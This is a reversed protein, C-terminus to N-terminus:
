VGGPSRGGDRRSRSHALSGAANWPRVVRPPFAFTFNGDDLSLNPSYFPDEEVLTAGWRRKMYAVENAFRRSNEPALDSGRSASELHYLEAYPTWIIGYGAERIRLCLDVDNFAVQLNKEDFGGVDEFVRRPMILCAATVCSVNQVLHLRGFYGAAPRPFRCHAHGAVGGMGIIVGAHQITDDGYYLKAGVAGIRPQVAQSVMETLWAPEIVEIDNNIFGIIEGEAIAVARNNLASFNFAGEIRLLRVRNDTGLSELYTLTAPERSDNDVILIELNPYDTKQLLGNICARLLELRDRTPVILSVRPPPDPLHRKVRWCGPITSPVIDVAEGLRVFHDTLARHAAQRTVDPNETSFTTVSPELRRHCLVHPIHRIGDATTRACIRLALDYDQRGEYECRFGGVARMLSTRFVGLHSVMNQSHFLEPNWDPKFYPDCRRDHDDIRDEDSYILDAGPHLNLEVAVMYLAHVPLLDDHDMLAVFDGTALELASNCAASMHRSQGCFVLKVRSDRRAYEDLIKLIELDSSANYAVCFEWHPYIQKCVTDVARRLFTPRPNSVPMLVSILPTSRLAKLHREIAAVDRETVADYRAVWTCYDAPPATKMKQMLRVATAGVGQRRFYHLGRVIRSAAPTWRGQLDGFM